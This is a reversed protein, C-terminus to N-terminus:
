EENDNNRSLITSYQTYVSSLANLYNNEARIYDEFVQFYSDLPIIGQRYKQFALELNNSYLKFSDYTSTTTYLSIEYEKLLLDDRLTSQQIESELNKQAIAHEIKAIKTRSRNALGNFVPVTLNMGLYSYDGWAGGDLSLTLDDQFQQQGFYANFTLKPYYASKEDKIKLRSQELQHELLTIGGDKALEKPIEFAQNSYEYDEDLILSVGADIGLLSKLQHLSKVLTSLNSFISQEVANLNISAHNLVSKDIIGKDFKEKTLIRISDAIAFDKENLQLAKQAILATHYYLAIQETLKVEFLDSQVEAIDRDVKATRSKITKQWDLVTQSITIGANYNYDRGFQVDVLEGPQGVLEGPIPTTALKLNNQASFSGTVTPLLYSKSLQHETKAKGQQHEHIIKELNHEHAYALAEEVSHLVITDNGEQSHVFMLQGLFLTIFLLVQIRM